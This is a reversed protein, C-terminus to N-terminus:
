IEPSQAGSLGFREAFVFCPVARIGLEQAKRQDSRVERAYRGTRLMESVGAADLGVEGALRELTEHHSMAGGECFYARFLREQMSDQVGQENALHLLRHADFTNSPRIGRFDFELGEAKASDAVREIMAEAERLSAGYKRALRAAYGEHDPERPAMPNLEFSRWKVRVADRHPFQVLAAEIRRKGIYCWPCAVDSWIDLSLVPMGLALLM